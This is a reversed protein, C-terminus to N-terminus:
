SPVDIAHVALFIVIQLYQNNSKVTDTFRKANSDTDTCNIEM